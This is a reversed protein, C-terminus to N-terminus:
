LLDDIVLIEIESFQRLQKDNTIFLDCKSYLASALQLSDATKFFKYQSKILASREAINKDIEVIKIGMIDIFQNYRALLSKDYLYPYLSYEAVSIASTYFDSLYNVKFINRIQNLYKDKQEVFYIIPATDLFIKSYENTM